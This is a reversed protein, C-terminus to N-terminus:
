SETLTKGAMGGGQKICWEITHGMKGCASNSCVLGSSPKTPRTRATLTIPSRFDNRVNNELLSQENELFQRIKMSTYPLADTSAAIDRSIISRAHPFHKSLSNLLVICCLLDPKIDGMAFAHEILTCIKDATEPLPTAATCQIM